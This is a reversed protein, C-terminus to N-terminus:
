VFIWSVMITLCSLKNRILVFSAYGILIISRLFFCFLFGSINMMRCVCISCRRFRNVFLMSMFVWCITVEVVFSRRSMCMTIIIFCSKSCICSIFM